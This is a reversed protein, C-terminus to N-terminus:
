QFGKMAQWILVGFAIPAGVGLIVAGKVGWILGGLAAGGGGVVVLTKVGEITM